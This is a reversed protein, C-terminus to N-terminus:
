KKVYNIKNPQFFSLTFFLLLPYYSLLHRLYSGLDPEFLWLTFMHASIFCRIQIVFSKNIIEFNIKKFFVIYFTGWIIITHLVEKLTFDFFLPLNLRLFAYVYNIIFNTHSSIDVLNVFATRFGDWSSNVIRYASSLDRTVQITYLTELPILFFIIILFLSFFYRQKLSIKSYIFLIFYILAILLFYTRAFFGYTILYTILLFIVVKEKKGFYRYFLYLMLYPFVLMIEKHPIRLFLVISALLVLIWLLQFPLYRNNFICYNIYFFSISFNIVRASSYGGVFNIVRVFFNTSKDTEGVFGAMAENIINAKALTPSLFTFDLGLGYGIFILSFIFNIILCDNVKLYKNFM